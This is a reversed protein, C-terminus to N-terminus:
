ILSDLAGQLIFQAALMDVVGKEKKGRKDRPKDWYNDVSATSLREDWLAIFPEEGFLETRKSMEDIFSLTADCRPGQSGDMNIPWGVIYGEIDFEKALVALQEIDKTFKARKITTVPTAISQNSDSVAIGIMKSGLDIGMLRANKPCANLCDKLLTVKM